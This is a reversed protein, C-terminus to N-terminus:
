GLLGGLLSGSLDGLLGNSDGMMDGSIDLIRLLSTLINRFSSLLKAMLESVGRVPGEAQQLDDGFADSVFGNIAEDISTTPPISPPVYTLADSTTVEGATTDSAFGPVAGVTLMAVMIAILPIIYLGKIKM